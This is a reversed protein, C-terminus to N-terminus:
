RTKTILCPTRTAVPNTPTHVRRGKPLRGPPPDHCVNLRRLIKEVVGLADIVAIIRMPNQCVPYRLPDAHWV